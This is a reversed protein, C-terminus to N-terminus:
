RYLICLLLILLNVEESTARASLIHKLKDLKPKPLVSPKVKEAIARQGEPRNATVEVVGRDKFDVKHTGKELVKKM